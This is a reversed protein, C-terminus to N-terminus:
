PNTERARKLMELRVNNDKNTKNTKKTLMRQDTTSIAHNRIPSQTPREDPLATWSAADAM